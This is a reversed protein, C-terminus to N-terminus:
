KQLKPAHCTNVWALCATMSNLHPFLETVSTDLYQLNINVINEYFCLINLIYLFFLLFNSEVIFAGGGGGMLLRSLFNFNNAFGCQIASFLGRQGCSDAKVKLILIQGHAYLNSTALLSM